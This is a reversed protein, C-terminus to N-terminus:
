ELQRQTFRASSRNLVTSEGSRNATVIGTLANAMVPSAGITQGGSGAALAVADQVTGTLLLQGGSRSMQGM